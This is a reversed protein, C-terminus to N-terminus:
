YEFCDSLSPSLCHSSLPCFRKLQVHCEILNNLNHIILSQYMFFFSSNIFPFFSTVADLTTSRDDDMEM